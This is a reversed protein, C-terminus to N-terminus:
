TTSFPLNGQHTYSNSINSIFHIITTPLQGHDAVYGCGNEVNKWVGLFCGIKSMSGRGDVCRSLYSAQRGQGVRWKIKSGSFSSGIQVMEGRLPFVATDSM